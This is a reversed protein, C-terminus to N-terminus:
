QVVYKWFYGWHLLTLSTQISKQNKKENTRKIFVSKKSMQDCFAPDNVLKNLWNDVYFSCSINVFLFNKRKQQKQFFLSSTKSRIRNDVLHLLLGLLSCWEKFWFYVAGFFSLTCRSFWQSWFIYFFMLTLFIILAFTWQKKTKSVLSFNTPYKKFTSKIVIRFYHGNEATWFLHWM